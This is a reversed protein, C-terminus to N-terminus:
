YCPVAAVKQPQGEPLPERRKVPSALCAFCDGKPLRIALTAASQAKQLYTRSVEWISGNRM